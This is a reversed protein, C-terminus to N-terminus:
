GVIEALSLLSSRLKVNQAKAQELHVLIKPRGGVLDFGMVMGKPVYRADAGVSLISLGTLAEAIAPIERRLGTSVYLVAASEARCRETLGEPTDYTASM